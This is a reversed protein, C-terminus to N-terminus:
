DEARCDTVARRVREAMALTDPTRSPRAPGAVAYIWLVLGACAIALLVLGRLLVQDGDHALSALAAVEGAFLVLLMGKLVFRDFPERRNVRNFYRGEIVGVLLLVPLVQAVSVYFDHPLPGATLAAGYLLCASGALLAARRGIVDIVRDLLRNPGAVILALPGARRARSGAIGRRIRITEQPLPTATASRAARAISSSRAAV